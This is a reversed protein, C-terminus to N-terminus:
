KKAPQVAFGLSAFSKAKIVDVIKIAQINEYAILVTRAGVNDPARREVLLLRESPAFSEFPIQEAFSTVIVGRRPVDAPWELFCQRWVAAADM